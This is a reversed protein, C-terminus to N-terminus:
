SLKNRLSQLKLGEYSELFLSFAQNVSEVLFVNEELSISWPTPM